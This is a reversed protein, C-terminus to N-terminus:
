KTEEPPPPPFRTNSFRSTWSVKYFNYPQNNEKHNIVVKEEETILRVDFNDFHLSDMLSLINKFDPSRITDSYLAIQISHKDDRKQISAAQIKKILDQKNILVLDVPNLGIYDPFDYDEGTDCCNLLSDKRHFFVKNNPTLILNYSSYFFKHKRELIETRDFQHVFQKKKETCSFFILLVLLIYIIQIKMKTVRDM